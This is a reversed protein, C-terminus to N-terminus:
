IFDLKDINEKRSRAKPTIDLSMLKEMKDESLKVNLDMIWKPNIKTFYTLETDLNNNNKACSHDLKETGNLTFSDKYWTFFIRAGSFQRREKIM